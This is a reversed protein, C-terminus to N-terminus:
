EICAKGVGGLVSPKPPKSAGQMEALLRSARGIDVSRGDLLASLKAGSLGAAAAVTSRRQTSSLGKFGSLFQAVTIEPDRILELLVRHGFKEVGYWHPPIPDASAWKETTVASSNIELERNISDGDEDRYETRDCLTFAAHPNLAAFDLILTDLGRLDCLPVRDIPYGIRVVTGGHREVPTEQRELVIQQAFRDVMLTITHQIGQSTITHEVRDGGLGLALCLIM